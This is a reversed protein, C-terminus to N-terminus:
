HPLYGYDVVKSFPVSWTLADTDRLVGGGVGGDDRPACRRPSGSPGVDRAVGAGGCVASAASLLLFCNKESSFFWFVDGREAGV